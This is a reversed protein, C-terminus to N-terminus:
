SIPLTVIFETGKGETSNVKISGGHGKVVIDYSLSLGLGTGEGTPKTTFFPQMIKEKIADPIGTGNDAVQIQIFNGAVSTSVEVQPKFGEGAAKQHQQVAYFANNFLNFLVRGIDQPIVMAVPLAPDFRTIIESNFFKDKARLGHYALRLYEDALKNLDSREKQGGSSRSHQLMGKVIGDARKGHHTIKEENQEIDDAIALAESIDGAQLAERLEGIMEHNVESFNNVFNLPNQIEHAIGATLEGLSAMKESQILQAQTAKLHNLNRKNIRLQRTIFVLLGLVAVLGILSIWIVTNRQSITAEQVVLKKNQESEKRENEYSAVNFKGVAQQLSDNKLSYATAYQWAKDTQHQDGYFKAIENLLKLQSKIQANSIAKDYEALLYHEAKTKDGLALYYKYFAYDVGLDGNLIVRAFESPKAEDRLLNLQQRAEALRGLAIYNLAKYIVIGQLDVENKAPPSQALYELSKNYRKLSYEARVIQGIFSMEEGTVKLKKQLEYGMQLYSLGKASNGWDNYYSGIVTFEHVYWLNSFPKFMESAKMYNNIAQNNDGTFSFYGAMCHYCAAANQDQGNQLYYALKHSYYQYKEPQHNTINFMWRMTILLWPAQIQEKDFEEVAKQLLSLEEPYHNKVGERLAQRLTIFPTSNFLRATQNLAILQNLYVTDIYAPSEVLQNNNFTLSFLINSKEENTKAQQLQQKLEPTKYNYVPNFQFPETAFAAFAFIALLFTIFIKRAM